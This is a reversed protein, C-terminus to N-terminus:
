ARTSAGARSGGRRSFHDRPLLGADPLRQDFDALPPWARRADALWGEVNAVTYQRPDLNTMDEWRVPVAVPLGPRARPSYPLVATAGQGNRLYDIFIRGRRQARSLAATFRAPERAALTQALARAFGKVTDWGAEPRLPVVVHLGKGGTTKLLSRLGLNALVERLDRAADIVARFPLDPDPDLDMVIWDPYAARRERRAGWGHFEVTNFQVLQLLGRLEATAIVEHGGIRMQRVVHGVGPPRAKQFFCAQADGQPCRLLALPRDAAFDLLQPGVRAVYAALQGKTIGSRADIVRRPHSICVGAYVPEDDVTENDGDSSPPPQAREVNVDRATKDARLGLFVAHRLMGDGTFEAFEIECVLEPHTWVLGRERPPNRVPAKPVRLADLRAHLDTLTAQDFGTGVKGCYRLGDGEHVALLLAGLSARAGQGRSMGVIVFEQRQRCKLKLWDRTRGSRYPADARKAILGELGAACARSWALAGNGDVHDSYHLAGRQRGLLARLQQKREVLPRDRLDRGDLLLLDFAFLALARQDGMARTGAGRPLLRQLAQFSTRGQPDVACLEGDLVAGRADLAALADRIGPFTQTWDLGNRSRLHVQAGDAWALVRYGDYKVEFVWNEGTPARTVATALQPQLGDLAAARPVATRPSRAPTTPTKTKAATNRARRPPLPGGSLVSHPERATIEAEAGSRAHADHRKILLWSSGPGSAAKGVRTRVLTFAGHLKQGHLTFDLKGRRLAERADGQPTWQGHDWVIVTGGGYEGEPIRGEFRRYAVPHDETQVALRRDRPSLSPGKPVAWSVLVGDLELRFDYHLHTADHKQVVFRRQADAEVRAPPEPTKDFARRARYERLPDTRVM